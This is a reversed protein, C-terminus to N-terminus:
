RKKSVSFQHSHHCVGSLLQEALHICVELLHRVGTRGLAQVFRDSVFEVQTALADTGYQHKHAIVEVAFIHVGDERLCCPKLGIM